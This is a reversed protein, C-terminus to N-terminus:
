AKKNNPVFNLIAYIGNDWIDRERAPLFSSGSEFSITSFNRSRRFNIGSGWPVFTINVNKAWCKVWWNKLVSWLFPGAKVLPRPWPTHDSYSSWLETLQVCCKTRLLEQAARITGQLSYIFVPARGTCRQKGCVQQLKEKPLIVASSLMEEQTLVAWTSRNLTEACHDPHSKTNKELIQKWRFCTLYM